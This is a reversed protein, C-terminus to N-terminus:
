KLKTINYCGCLLNSESGPWFHLAIGYWIMVGAPDFTAAFQTPIEDLLIKDCTRMCKKRGDDSCPQQSRCNFYCIDHDMCTEDIKDIPKKYDKVQKPNFSEALGGTWNPGSWNGYIRSKGFPDTYNTPNQSVYSYFNPDGSGFRLPDERLFRGLGPDSERGTYQFPNVLLGSATTQKGYSDFTYTQALSTISGLGDAHYFGATSSRLMALPEHINLGQSYRAVVAGAANTAEILDDGDYAYISTASSSSKYM